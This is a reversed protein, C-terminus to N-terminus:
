LPRAFSLEHGDPDRLHFYHEGWAADRPDFEPRHGAAVAAAHTADPDEVHFIVRGWFGGPPGEGRSLNVYNGGIRLSTFDADTGGHAVEFGLDEYFAVSQAMDTVLFTVANIEPVTLREGRQGDGRTRVR